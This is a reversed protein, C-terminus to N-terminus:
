RPRPGVHPRKGESKERARTRMEEMHTSCIGGMEDETCENM